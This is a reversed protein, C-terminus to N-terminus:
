LTNAILRPLVTELFGISFNSCLTLDLEFNLGDEGYNYVSELPSLKVVMLELCLRQWLSSMASRANPFDVSGAEMVPKGPYFMLSAPNPTSQTQIFMSRRQGQFHNWQSRGLSSKLSILDSLGSSSSSSSSFLFRRFLYAGRPQNRSNFPKSLSGGNNSSVLLARRVLRGLSKMM